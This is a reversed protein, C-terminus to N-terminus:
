ESEQAMRDLIKSAQNFSVHELSAIEFHKTIKEVWENGKLKGIAIVKNVQEETAPGDKKDHLSQVYAPDDFKGLFVDASLGLSATSKSFADTFCKKDSDLDERGNEFAMAKATVPPLYRITDTKDRYWVRVTCKVVVTDEDRQVEIWEAEGGWGTGCAGFVETMRQKQYQPDISTFGGRFGVEKTYDPDTECLELWIAMNDQPEVKPAAKPKAKPKPKTATTKRKTSRKHTM